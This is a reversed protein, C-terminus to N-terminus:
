IGMLNPVVVMFTTQWVSQLARPTVGRFLAAYGDTQITDRWYEVIPKPTKGMSSDRQALIRTNWCSVLGGVVGSTLEGAVGWKSWGWATRAVETFGARSAWNTAQRWCMPGAGAYLGGVGRDRLLQSTVTWATDKEKGDNPRRTARRHQLTTFVMGAPTMVVAQAVGGVLGGALAAVTPPVGGVAVLQRQTFRSAVLFCAGVLAGEVMRSPTGTWLAGINNNNPGVISRFAQPLNERTTTVRTKLSELPTGGTLDSAMRLAAGRVLMKLVSSSPPSPVAASLSRTASASCLSVEDDNSPTAPPYIDPAFRRTRRSRGHIISVPLSGAVATPNFVLPHRCALSFHDHISPPLMYQSAASSAETLTVHINFLQSFWLFSTFRSAQSSRM